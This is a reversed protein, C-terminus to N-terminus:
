MSHQSASVHRGEQDVRILTVKVLALIRRNSHIKEVIEKRPPFGLEAMEIHNVASEVIKQVLQQLLQSRIKATVAKEFEAAFKVKFIDYM